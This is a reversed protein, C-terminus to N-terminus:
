QQLSGNKQTMRQSLLKRNILVTNPYNREKKEPAKNSLTMINRKSKPQVEM